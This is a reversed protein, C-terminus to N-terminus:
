GAHEEGALDAFASRNAEPHLVILQAEVGHCVLKIGGDAARGALGTTDVSVVDIRDSVQAPAEDLLMM